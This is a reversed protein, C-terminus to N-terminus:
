AEVSEVVDSIQFGFCGVNGRIAAGITSPLGGAWELGILSHAFAFKIVEDLTQGAFAELTSDKISIGNKTQEAKHIIAGDFYSDTFLLNAGLGAIFINNIRRKKIFTIADKVDEKSECRLLYKTKGGIKYWFLTSVDFNEYIKM